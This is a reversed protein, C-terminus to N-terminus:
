SAVFLMVFIQTNCIQLMSVFSLIILILGDNTIHICGQLSLMKLSSVLQQCIVRVSKDRLNELKLEILELPARISVNEFAEDINEVTLSNLKLSRLYIARELLLRVVQNDVATPNSSYEYCEFSVLSNFLSLKATALVRWFTNCFFEPFVSFCCFIWVFYTKM